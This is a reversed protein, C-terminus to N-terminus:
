YLFRDEQQAFAEFVALCEDRLFGGEVRVPSGGQAKMQENSIALENFGLARADAIATGYVIRDCRAWHIASFCMPCPETTAYVTCGSLDITGRERCAVRLAHVEAHATVDCSQRVVNHVCAVVETGHVVCAGFPSGGERVGELAKRIAMRMFHADPGQDNM